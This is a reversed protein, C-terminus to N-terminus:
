VFVCQAACQVASLSVFVDTCLEFVLIHNLERLLRVGDWDLGLGVGRGRGLTGKTAIHDRRAIEETGKERAEM